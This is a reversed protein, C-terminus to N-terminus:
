FTSELLNAVLRKSDDSLDVFKIGWTYLAGVSDTWVIKGTVKSEGYSSHIDFVVEDGMALKPEDCTIELRFGAGTDSINQVVARYESGKYEFEARCQTALYKRSSKRGGRTYKDIM